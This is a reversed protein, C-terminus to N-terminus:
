TYKIVGYLQVGSNELDVQPSIGVARMCDILVRAENNTVIIFKDKKYNFAYSKDNREFVHNAKVVVHGNSYPQGVEFTTYRKWIARRVLLYIYRDCSNAESLLRRTKTRYRNFAMSPIVVSPVALGPVVPPVTVPPAETLPHVIEKLEIDVTDSSM